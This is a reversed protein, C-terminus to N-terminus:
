IAGLDHVFLPALPARLGINDQPDWFKKLFTYYM